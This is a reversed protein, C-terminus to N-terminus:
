NRPIRLAPFFWRVGRLWDLSGEQIFAKVVRRVDAKMWTLREAIRFQEVFRRLEDDGNYGDTRGDWNQEEGKRPSRMCLWLLRVFMTPLFGDESGSFVEFEDPVFNVHRETNGNNMHYLGIAMVAWLTHRPAITDRLAAEVKECAHYTMRWRLKDRLLEQRPELFRCDPADVIEWFRAVDRQRTARDHPYM